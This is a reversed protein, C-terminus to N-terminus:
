GAIHQDCGSRLMECVALGFAFSHFYCVCLLSLRLLLVQRPREAIQQACGARSTGTVVLALVLLIRTCPLLLLGLGFCCQGRRSHSARVAPYRVKQPANMELLRRCFTAATAFNKLKYFLIMASRLSLVLHGPQLKAHTFYAALEAQRNPETSSKRELECRLGINYERHGDAREHGDAGEERRLTRPVQLVSIYRQGELFAASIPSCVTRLHLKHRYIQQHRYSTRQFALPSSEM